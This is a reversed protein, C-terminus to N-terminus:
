GVSRTLPIERQPTWGTFPHAQPVSVTGDITYTDGGPGGVRIRDGKKVDAAGVYLSMSELAQERTADGLLSTSTQAVFADQLPLVDPDAWDGPVPKKTYPDVVTGKPRLRDVTSPFSLPMSV